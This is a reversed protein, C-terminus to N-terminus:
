DIPMLTAPDLGNDLVGVYLGLVLTAWCFDKMVPAYGFRARLTPLFINGM